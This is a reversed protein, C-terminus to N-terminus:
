SEPSPSNRPTVIYWDESVSLARAAEKADLMRDAEQQTTNAKQIAEIVLERLQEVTLTYAPTSNLADTKPTQDM